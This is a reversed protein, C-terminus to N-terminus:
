APIDGIVILTAGKDVTQANNVLISTVIGERLAKLENQMKMSELIVLTQGESVHDGVKVTVEVVLGPMPAIIDGTKAKIGGKRNAMLLAREDLVQAEYIRGEMLVQLGTPVEEVVLEASRYDKIVSFREEGIDLFDIDHPKGDVTIKGDALIEIEFRRENVIAVYKM